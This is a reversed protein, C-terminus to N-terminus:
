GSKKRYKKWENEDPIIKGIEVGFQYVATLAKANSPYYRIQEQGAKLFDIYEQQRDVMSQLKSVSYKDLARLEDTDGDINTETNGEVLTNIESNTPSWGIRTNRMRELTRAKKERLMKQMSELRLKEQMVLGAMEIAAAGMNYTGNYVMKHLDPDGEENTSDLTAMLFDRVKIIKEDTQLESIPVGKTRKPKPKPASAVVQEQQAAFQQTAQRAMADTAQKYAAFPDSMDLIYWFQPGFVLFGAM